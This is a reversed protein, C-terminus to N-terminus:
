SDFCFHVTRHTFKFAFQEILKQLDSGGQFAEVAYVQQTALLLTILLLIQKM